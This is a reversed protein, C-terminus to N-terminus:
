LIFIKILAAVVMIILLAYALANAHKWKSIYRATFWGGIIQGAALILGYRWNVMDHWIVIGLVIPSYLCIAILKVVNANMIPMKHLLVLTALLIVGMGMQIFGGYIGVAFLIISKIFNPITTAILDPNLWKKPNILLMLFLAVLLVRYIFKFQEPSVLVSLIGGIIGGIFLIPITHIADSKRVGHQKFMTYSTLTSHFFIGVRNTGNATLAPLGIFEMLITLTILSGNGALTNIFGATAGAIILLILEVIPM